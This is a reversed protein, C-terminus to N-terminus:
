RAKSTLILYLRYMHTNIHTHSSNDMFVTTSFQLGSSIDEFFFRLKTGLKRVLRRIESVSEHAADHSGITM